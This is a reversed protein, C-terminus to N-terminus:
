QPAPAPASPAASGSDPPAAAGTSDATSGQGQEGAANMRNKVLTELVKLGRQNEQLAADISGGERRIQSLQQHVSALDIYLNLNSSDAQIARNYNIVVDDYNGDELAQKAQDLASAATENGQGAGLLEGELTSGAGEKKGGGFLFCGTSGYMMIVVLLAMGGYRIGSM